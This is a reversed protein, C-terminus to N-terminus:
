VGREARKDFYRRVGAYTLDFGPLQRYLDREDGAEADLEAEALRVFEDPPMGSEVRSAWEHLRARMRAAHVSADEVVGFHPLM